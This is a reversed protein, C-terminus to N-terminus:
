IEFEKVDKSKFPRKTYFRLGWKRLYDRFDDTEENEEGRVTLQNFNFRCGSFYIDPYEFIVDTKIGNFRAIPTYQTIIDAVMGEREAVPVPVIDRVFKAPNGAYIRNAKLDKTVVSNAGVVVNHSIYVGMMILSRYGIISGRDIAVGEFKAPYGELVSLWYGHTLIAVDPSLGVDNGIVVSKCVNIFNNHITCRDGITLNSTPNHRGGGGVRLGGSCFLDSGFTINNGKIEVNDGFRCRDGIKLTGHINVNFNDGFTVDKGMEIKRAKIRYKKDFHGLREEM